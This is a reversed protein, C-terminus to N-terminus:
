PPICDGGRRGLERRLAVTDKEINVLLCIKIHPAVTGAQELMNSLIVGNEQLDVTRKLFQNSQGALHSLAADIM